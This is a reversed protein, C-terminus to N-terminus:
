RIPTYILTQDYTITTIDWVHVSVKKGYKWWFRRGDKWIVAPGEDRHFKGRETEWTIAGPYEKRVTKM